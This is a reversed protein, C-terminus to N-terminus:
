RDARGMQHLLLFLLLFTQSDAESPSHCSGCPVFSVYRPLYLSSYVICRQLGLGCFMDNEKIQVHVVM